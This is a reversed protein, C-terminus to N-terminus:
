TRPRKPRASAACTPLSPAFAREGRGSVVPPAVFVLARALRSVDRVLPGTGQEAVHMRIGNVTLTHHKLEAAM